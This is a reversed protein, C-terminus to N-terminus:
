EFDREKRRNILISLLNTSTLKKQYVKLENEINNLRENQILQIEDNSKITSKLDNIVSVLESISENLQRSEVHGRQYFFVALALSAVGLLIGTWTIFNREGSLGFAAYITALLIVIFLIVAVLGYTSMFNKLKNIKKM